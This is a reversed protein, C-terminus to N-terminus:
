GGSVSRKSAPTNKKTKSLDDDYDPLFLCDFNEARHMMKFQESFLMKVETNREVVVVYDGDGREIVGHCPPVKRNFDYKKTLYRFEYSRWISDAEEASYVDKSFAVAALKVNNKKKKNGSEGFIVTIGSEIDIKFMNSERMRNYCKRVYLISDDYEIIQM